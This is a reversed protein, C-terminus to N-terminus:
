ILLGTSAILLVYGRIRVVFLVKAEAPVYVQGRTKALKQARVKDSSIKRYQSVYKEARRFIVERKAKLRQLVTLLSFSWFILSVKVNEAAAKAAHERQAERVKTTKLITEPVKAVAEKKAPAAKATKRDLRLSCFSM